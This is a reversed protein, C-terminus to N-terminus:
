RIKTRQRTLLTAFDPKGNVMAVIEGDIVSGNPLGSLPALEPFQATFDSKRRGILRYRGGAVYCIARFGDWKIEFLFEDSDFPEGPKALMPEIFTPLSGPRM